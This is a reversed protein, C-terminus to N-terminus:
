DPLYDREGDKDLIYRKGYKDVKVDPPDFHDDPSLAHTIKFSDPKARVVEKAQEYSTTIRKPNIQGSKGNKRRWARTRCTGGCRQADVIRSFFDKGCEVCNPM